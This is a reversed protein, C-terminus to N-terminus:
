GAGCAAATFGRASDTRHSGGGLSVKVKTERGEGVPISLEEVALRIREALAAGGDLNTRPMIVAFEEGGIRALMEESRVCTQLVTAVAVLVM